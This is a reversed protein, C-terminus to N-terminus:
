GTSGDHHSTLDPNANRIRALYRVRPETGLEDLAAYARPQQRQRVVESEPETLSGFVIANTPCAQQCATRVDTGRLPRDDRGAAIEAERIRQVCFTCKEMVGRERVTVNPNKAMVETESLHKNYDFWNFRRVKYPCNNSCFRTGVCRNYVMENLGDASHTTAEVPCVYECPAHECQQCLMPQVLAEIEDEREAFYRDIRLWHMVRGKRVEEAGVVPVNNEAQCAVVCAGCGICTGLDITMAWQQAAQGGAPESPYLSLTRGRPRGVSTPAARYEDLTAERITDNVRATPQPQAIALVTTGATRELAVGISVRERTAPWLSYASAGVDRAHAEAGTRGYGFHVTVVDDAHGPIILAPLELRRGEASLTVHMGDSVGIRAATTPSMLAANGWTLQSLPAPLEQLWANNAFTGDHVKPDAAFVVDVSGPRPSPHAEAAISPALPPSARNFATGSVVGHQLADTWATQPDGSTRRQWSSTLLDYPTSLGSGAIASYLSAATVSEYLPTILPQVISITGDSARADSWTELYHSLPIFWRADRATENEYLGVYGANPVARMLSSFGLAAPTAYSPNGGVVILTDVAGAHLAALLETLSHVPIQGGILPSPTHWTTHGTAGISDNIAGALAHVSAPQTDGVIVVSRGRHAALDKAAAAIFPTTPAATGAVSDRLERLLAPVDRPRVALRHDAISGTPTFGSEMAYLRNMADAPRALRRNDAFARAYRLHFPGSALFDSDLALIVAAASIDYQRVVADHPRDPALPAYMYIRAEPYTALVRGLLEEDLLSSSPEILIHLGSGRVGVRPTLAAPALTANMAPLSTRANGIRPHRARDPDYLSLVSAQEFPGSAGLSGPHEPNGEIKTPRGDHSEVILGTAIGDICMATAYYTGVGPTLEPRNDVYPLIHRAPMPTCADLGALAIGAGVLHVFDRRNMSSATRDHASESM